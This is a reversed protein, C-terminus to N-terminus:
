VEYPSEVRRSRVRSRGSAKKWTHITRVFYSPAPGLAAMMLTAWADWSAIRSMCPLLIAM